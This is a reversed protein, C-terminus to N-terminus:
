APKKNRKKPPPGSTPVNMKGDATNAKYAPDDDAKLIHINDKIGASGGAQYALYALIQSRIWAETTQGARRALVEIIRWEEETFDLTDSLDDPTRPIGEPMIGFFFLDLLRKESPALARLGSEIKSIQNGSVGILAGVEAQNLGKAGRLFKLNEATTEKYENIMNCEM